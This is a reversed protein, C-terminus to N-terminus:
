RKRSLMTGRCRAAGCRCEWQKRLAATVKEDPDIRYDFTLEDGPALDRISEIIIRDRRPDGSRSGIWYAKCNPRCAHNIWRASNGQSRADIVYQDNLTFLFTHGDEDLTEYERDIEQHSVLRGRYRIITSGRAIRQLAFVGKGHIGSRRVAISRVSKAKKNVAPM